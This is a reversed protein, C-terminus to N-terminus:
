SGGTLAIVAFMAGTPDQIISMRGVNPIDFPPQIITAGLEFAKSATEDTNDVAIYNMFHPPMGAHHEESLQYLGGMTEEGAKGFEIYQMEEGTADSQKLDWGFVNAYFQRCTELNKTGIDTWCFEGHKPMRMGEAAANEAM